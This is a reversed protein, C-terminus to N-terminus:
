PEDDETLSECRAVITDVWRRALTSAAAGAWTEIEVRVVAGAREVLVNGGPLRYPSALAERRLQELWHTGPPAVVEVVARIRSAGAVAAVLVAARTLERNPLLCHSGEATALTTRWTGIHVVRGRVGGVEITDGEGFGRRRALSLGAAFDRAAGPAAAIVVLLLALFIAPIVIPARLLLPRAAILVSAAVVVIRLALVIRPLRRRMRGVYPRVRDALVGIGWSAVLAVITMVIALALARGLVAPTLADLEAVIRANLTGGGDAAPEPELEIEIM